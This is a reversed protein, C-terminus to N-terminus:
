YRQVSRQAGTLKGIHEKKLNTFHCGSARACSRCTGLEFINNLARLRSVVKGHGREAAAVAAAVVAPGHQAKGSVVSLCEPSLQERYHAKFLSLLQV